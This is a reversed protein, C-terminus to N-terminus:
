YDQMITTVDLMDTGDANFMITWGISQLEKTVFPVLDHRSGFLDFWSGLVKDRSDKILHARLRNIQELTNASAISEEMIDLGDPVRMAVTVAMKMTDNITNKNNKTSNIEGFDVLLYTICGPISNLYSKLSDMSQGVAMYEINPLVGHEPLYEAFRKLDAYGPVHSEANTFMNLVGAREPYKSFYKIIDIIM